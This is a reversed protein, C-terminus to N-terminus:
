RKYKIEVYGFALKSGAVDLKILKMGGLGLKSTTGLGSL